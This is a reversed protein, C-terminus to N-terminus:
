PSSGSNRSRRFQNAGRMKYRIKYVGPYSGKPLKTKNKACLITSLNRGSKFAIDYGAKKYVSRLKPSVGPIWPLTVRHHGYDTSFEVFIFATNLSRWWWVDGSIIYLLTTWFVVKEINQSACWSGPEKQHLFTRYIKESYKSIIKSTGNPRLFHSIKCFFLLIGYKQLKYLLPLSYKPTDLIAGDNGLGRPGLLFFWFLNKLFLWKQRNAAGFVALIALIASFNM